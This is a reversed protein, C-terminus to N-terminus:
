MGKLSITLTTVATNTSGALAKVTVLVYNTGTYAVYFEGTAIAASSVKTGADFATKGATWNAPATAVKVLKSVDHTADYGNALTVDGATKAAFPTMLKLAGGSLVFVFDVLGRNANAEASLMVKKADLDIASGLTAHGQAGVDADSGTAWAVTKTTTDVPDKKDDTLCGTTTLSMAIALLGGALLKKTTLLSM